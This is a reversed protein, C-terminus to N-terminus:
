QHGLDFGCSGSEDTDDTSHHQLVHDLRRSVLEGYAGMTGIGSDPDGHPFIVHVVM